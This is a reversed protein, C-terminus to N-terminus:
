EKNSGFIYLIRILINLIDLYFVAACYVANTLNCPLRQARNADYVVIGGMLILILFEYVNWFGKGIPLGWAELLPFAIYGYIAGFLGVIIFTAWHELSKPYIAGLVGCFLVIVMTILLATFISGTTYESFFPGSILGMPIVILLYGLVVRPLTGLHLLVIGCFSVLLAGICYFVEEWYSWNANWTFTACYFSLSMGAISLVSYLVNFLRRPITNYESDSFLDYTDFM